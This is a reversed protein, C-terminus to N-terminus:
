PLKSLAETCMQAKAVNIGAKENGDVTGKAYHLQSYLHFQDRCEQLAERAEKLAAQAAELEAAMARAFKAPVCNYEIAAEVRETPTM